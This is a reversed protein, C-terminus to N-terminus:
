LMRLASPRFTTAATNTAYRAGDHWWADLQDRPLPHCVLYGQIEDCQLERLMAKQFETEVGEAVVKLGLSHALSIITKVITVVEDSTEMDRIFSKDIKLVNGPLKALYSLSSYGTGFDDIIISVGMDRIAKLKPINAALDQMILSETIEMELGVVGSKDNRLVREVIAPFELQALQLASVNVAIRPQWGGNMRWERCDRVAREMVWRGVDIILGTDELVPVFEDPRVIGRGPANWRLLAECGAIENTPLFLKPQYYLEFEDKEVARRLAAHLALRKEFHANFEATYFQYTKGGLQRARSSAASANKLLVQLNTGDQPYLSVGMSCTLNLEHGELVMPKHVDDLLTHLLGMVNGQNFITSSIRDLVHSVAGADAKLPLVLAFESGSLRAVSDVRRICAEIRGAVIKLLADGVSHGLTENILRLNELKLVGIAVYHEDRDAGAMAQRVYEALLNRNALGTVMDRNALFDLEDKRSLHELAFSINGSLETLLRVEETTFFDVERALLVLVGIADNHHMLPLALVSRYGRRLAELRKASGPTRETILDNVIAPRRTRIARGVVSQGLPIDGRATSMGSAVLKQAEYGASAVPKIDLTAFELEGIWAIGFKGDAVAIRCIDDFLQRRDTMRVLAGNIGSLVAHLRSLRVIRDLQVQREMYQGVQNSIAHFMELTEADEESVEFRWFVMVGKIEGQVAIPVAMGSRLGARVAPPPLEPVQLIDSVWVPRGSGWARGALGVNPAIRLTLSDAVFDVLAPNDNTWIDVYQLFESDGSVKWLSAAAFGELNCITTLLKQTADRLDGAQALLRAIEYQASLRRQTNDSM